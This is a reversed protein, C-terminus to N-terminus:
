ARARPGRRAAAEARRRMAGDWVALWKGVWDPLMWLAWLAESALFVWPSIAVGAWLAVTLGTCHKVSIQHIAPWAVV